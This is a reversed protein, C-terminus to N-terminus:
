RSTKPTRTGLLVQQEPMASKHEPAYIGGARKAEELQKNCEACTVRRHDTGTHTKITPDCATFFRVQDQVVYRRLWHTIKRSM